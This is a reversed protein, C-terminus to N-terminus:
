RDSDDALVLEQWGKLEQITNHLRRREMENTRITAEAEALSEQTSALDQTLNAIRGTKTQIDLEAEKQKAEAVEVYTSFQLTPSCVM